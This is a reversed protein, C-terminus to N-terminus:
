KCKVEYLHSLGDVLIHGNYPILVPTKYYAEIIIYEYNSESHFQFSYEIWEPHDIEESELLIDKGICSREAGWIRLVSPTLYNAQEKTTQSHSLYNESQSLFVSLGYCAGQKLPQVLQQSVAEWSDNDRTVMGLYTNGHAASKVVKWAGDDTPHIDPPSENKFLILGCDNWDKIPQQLQWGGKRSVDEFSPNNLEISDIIILSDVRNYNEIVFQNGNNKLDTQQFSFYSGSTLCLILITMKYLM